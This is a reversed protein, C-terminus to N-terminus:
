SDPIKIFYLSILESYLITNIFVNYKKVFTDHLSYIKILLMYIICHIFDLVNNDKRNCEVYVPHRM